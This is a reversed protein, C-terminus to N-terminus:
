MAFGPSGSGTSRLDGRRRKRRSDRRPNRCRRCIASRPTRIFPERCSLRVVEKTIEELRRICELIHELHVRDDKVMIAPDGRPIVPLPQDLPIAAALVSARLDPPLASETIVDVRCALLNELDDILGAPFWPSVVPGEVVLFDIDSDSNALGRAVSGFLRIDKAGHRAAIELIRRQERRLLDASPAGISKM